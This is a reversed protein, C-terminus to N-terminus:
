ESRRNDKYAKTGKGQYTRKKGRARQPDEDFYFEYMSKDFSYQSELRSTNQTSSFPDNAGRFTPKAKRSKFGDHHQMHSRLSELSKAFRHNKYLNGNKFTMNYYITQCNLWEEPQNCFYRAACELLKSNRRGRARLGTRKKFM